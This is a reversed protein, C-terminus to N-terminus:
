SFAIRLNLHIFVTLFLKSTLKILLIWLCFSSNTVKFIFWCFHDLRFFFIMSIFFFLSDSVQLVGDFTCIYVYYSNWFSIFSASLINSSIIAVKWFPHFIIIKKYTPFLCLSENVDECNLEQFGSVFFSTQFLENCVIFHLLILLQRRM